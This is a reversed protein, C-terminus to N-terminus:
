QHEILSVKVYIHNLAKQVTNGSFYECLILFMFIKFVKNQALFSM